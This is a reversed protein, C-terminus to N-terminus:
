GQLIAILVEPKAPKVIVPFGSARLEQLRHPSTNGTVLCVNGFGYERSLIQATELGSLASGLMDDTLIWNPLKAVEKLDSLLDTARAYTRVSAGWVSLQEDLSDLVIPDDDLVWVTASTQFNSSDIPHSVHLADSDGVLAKPVSFSFRAGSGVESHVQLRLKLLSDIRKVIALGLGAGQHRQRGPNALQVYEEFIQEQQEVPIGPGTDAVEVVYEATLEVVRVTVSGSDTYKLANEILNKLVRRILIRDSDAISQAAVTTLKLEKSKADQGFEEALREILVDLRFPKREVEIAGADFRSLDLLSNFQEELVNATETVRNLLRKADDTTVHFSLTGLFMTLAHLPQRLDHSAAALFRSKSESAKKVEDLALEVIRKDSALQKLLDANETRIRLSERFQRSYDRGFGMMLLAVAAYPFAVALQPDNTTGIGLWFLVGQGMHIVTVTAFSPFHSSANVLAGIAYFCSVLTMVSRVTLDGNAAVLWFAAGIVFANIIASIWLYLEYRDLLVPPADDIRGRILHCLAARGLWVGAMMSEWLHLPPGPVHGKLAFQVAILSIVLVPLTRLAQTSRIRMSARAFLYDARADTREAVPPSEPTM